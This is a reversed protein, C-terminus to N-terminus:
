PHAHLAVSRQFSADCSKDMIAYIREVLTRAGPLDVFCLFEIFYKKARQRYCQTWCDGTTEWLAGYVYGMDRRGYDIEQKARLAPRATVKIAEQGPYSKASVPGM